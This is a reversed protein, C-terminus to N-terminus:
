RKTEERCAADIRARALAALRALTEDPDACLEALRESVTPPPDLLGALATVAARRVDLDEDDTAALLAEAAQPLDPALERLAFAAMRRASPDEASRVLGVLVGVIEPHLRGMDVLVRAAAWRVEGDRAGLGDVLAPLLGPGPPELRALVLAARIRRARPNHMAEAPKATRLAARLLPAVGDSGRALALLADGAARAVAREPDGLGDVLGDVLLVGAPDDAIARCAAVRATCDESLLAALLPHNM